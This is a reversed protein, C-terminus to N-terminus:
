RGGQGDVPANAREQPSSSPQIFLTTHNLPDRLNGGRPVQLPDIHRVDADSALKMEIRFQRVVRSDFEKEEIYMLTVDALLAYSNLESLYSTVEMNSPAVGVMTLTVEFRPPEIRDVTEEAEEKTKGRRNRQRSAKPEADKSNPTQQVVKSQIQFELLGLQKPMRNILEALLISRPVREVLAAALEAKHLMEDRQRELETLEQIQQGAEAYRVNIHEQEEKIQSWAQNTVLFAGFVAAMVIAFLSLCILNTRREIRKALYDDPLFTSSTM